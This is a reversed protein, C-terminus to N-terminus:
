IVKMKVIMRGCIVFEIAVEIEINALMDAADPSSINSPTM